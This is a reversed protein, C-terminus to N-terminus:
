KYKDMIRQLKDKMKNQLELPELVECKEGYSLIYEILWDCWIFNNEAIISGDEQLECDKFDEYARYGLSKDIKVKVKIRQSYKKEEFPIFTKNPIQRIYHENLIELGRMRKLKFFRFDNRIRCFAYLYWTIGKFVLKLPEVERVLEEGKMGVYTFRLVQKQLISNKLTRFTTVDRERDSWLNLDVEIWEEEVAEFSDKIDNESKLAPLINEKEQETIIKKNKIYDSTMVVGGGKGQIMYITIGADSLIQVDKYIMKESVGLYEALKKTSIQKKDILIYIIESLRGSKM